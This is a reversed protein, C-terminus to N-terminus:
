VRRGSNVQEALWDSLNVQPKAEEKAKPKDILAIKLERAKTEFDLKYSHVARKERVKPDIAALIEVVEANIDNKVEDMLTLLEVLKPSFAEKPFNRFQVPTKAM